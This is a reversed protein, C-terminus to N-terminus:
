EGYERELRIREDRDERVDDPDRAWTGDHECPATVQPQDTMEQWECARRSGAGCHTCVTPERSM